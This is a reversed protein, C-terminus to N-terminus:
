LSIYFHSTSSNRRFCQQFTHFIERTDTHGVINLTDSRKKEKILNEPKRELGSMSMDLKVIKDM